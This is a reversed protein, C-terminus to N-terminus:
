TGAGSGRCNEGSGTCIIRVAGSSLAAATEPMSTLAKAKRLTKRTTSRHMRVERSLRADPARSGDESWIGRADWEAALRLTVADLKARQCLLAKLQRHVQGDTMTAVGIDAIGDLARQLAVFEPMDIDFM